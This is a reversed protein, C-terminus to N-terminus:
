AASPMRSLLGDRPSPSTYLLCGIDNIAGGGLKKNFLRHRLKFKLIPNVRFGFSSEVKKVNGIENNLIQNTIEITQPHSRYAINELFFVKSKNLQNFVQTSENETLTMPKECLIGKQAKAVKIILDAHKNNLTAIYVADIEDCNILEEYSNFQFNKDINFKEGFTLNLNKSLSAISILKANEVEKIANAFSNAARGLGLIGWRVM